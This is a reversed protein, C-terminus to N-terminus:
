EFPNVVPVGCRAFDGVNRTAVTLGQCRATAAIMTDKLPVTFGAKRVDHRLEAWIIATEATWPLCPLTRPARHFWDVLRAKRQGEPLGTIGEWIEGIVIPDIASKHENAVLWDLVRREGKPKTPESLVNVDVLFTM